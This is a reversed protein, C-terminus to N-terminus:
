CTIKVTAALRFANPCVEDTTPACAQGYILPAYLM